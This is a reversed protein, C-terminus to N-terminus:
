LWLCSLSDQPLPLPLTSPLLSTLSAVLFDVSVVLNPEYSSVLVSGGVQFYTHSPGLGQVRIYCIHLQTKM